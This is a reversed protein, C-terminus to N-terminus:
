QFIPGLMDKTNRTTCFESASINDLADDLNNFSLTSGDQSWLSGVKVSGYVSYTLTKSDFLITFKYDQPKEYM